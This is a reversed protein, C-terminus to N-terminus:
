PKNNNELLEKILFVIDNEQCSEPFYLTSFYPSFERIHIPQSLPV